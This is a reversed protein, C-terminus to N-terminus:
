ETEVVGTSVIEGAKLGSLIEAYFLDQLGVEVVRLKPEGDEMVFVTYQGPSAERLAEIPVLIANEARGGIVEVAAASGVPLKNGGFAADTLRVVGRVVSTNQESFLVPDVQAVEGSFTRESLVDFIVDVPYGLDIMGWDTEDLFIELYTESTDAVTIVPSTGVMDGAQIDVSMVTGSIPAYLRTADLADQASVVDLRAQELQRLRSGTANDPVEEGKLAALYNQLEELEAQALAYAARAEAIDYESPAALYSPETRTAPITFNDPVYDTEYYYLASRLSREAYDLDKELQAVKADAEDSPNQAAEEKAAALEEKLDAVNNEWRFVTPSIQYALTDRTDVVEQEAIALDREAVAISVPSLMEDLARQAIELKIQEPTNDLEALLQGAEVEDGVSVSLSAVQGGSRFGFSAEAAPILTGTGSAYLTLDGQRVKATQITPEDEAEATQNANQYAYFGGGAVLAIVLVSIWIKKNSFIKSFMNKGKRYFPDYHTKLYLM